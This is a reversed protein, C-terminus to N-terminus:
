NRKASEHYLGAVIFVSLLFLHVNKGVTALKSSAVGHAYSTISVVHEKKAIGEITCMMPVTDDIIGRGKASGAM